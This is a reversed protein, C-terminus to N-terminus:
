PQVPTLVVSPTLLDAGAPHLPGQAATHRAGQLRVALAASTSVRIRPKLQPVPVEEWLSSGHSLGLLCCCAQVCDPMLFSLDSFSRLFKLAM